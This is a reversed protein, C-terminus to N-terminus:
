MLFHISNIKTITSGFFIEIINPRPFFDVLDSSCSVRSVNEINVRAEINHSNLYLRCQAGIINM